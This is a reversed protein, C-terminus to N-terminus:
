ILNFFEMIGKIVPIANFVSTAILLGLLWKVKDYLSIIRGLKQFYSEDCGPQPTNWRKYWALIPVVEEVVNLNSRAFEHAMRARYSLTEEEPIGEEGLLVRYLKSLMEGQADIKDELTKMTMSVEKAAAQRAIKKIQEETMTNAM